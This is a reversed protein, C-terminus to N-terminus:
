KDSINFIRTIEISLRHKYSFPDDEFVLLTPVYEFGFRWNETIKYAVNGVLGVGNFKTSSLTKTGAYPSDLKIDLINRSFNLGFSLIWDTHRINRKISLFIQAFLEYEDDPSPGQIAILPYPYSTAFGLHFSKSTNGKKVDLGLSLGIYGTNNQTSSYFFNNVYPLSLHFDVGSISDNAMQIKDLQNEKSEMLSPLLFFIILIIGL